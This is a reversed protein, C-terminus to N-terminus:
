IIDCLIRSTNIKIFNRRLNTFIQVVDVIAVVGNQPLSVDFREGFLPILIKKFFGKVILFLQAIIYRYLLAVM